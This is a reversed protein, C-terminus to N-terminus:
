SPLRKALEAPLADRTKETIRLLEVDDRRKLADTFPHRFGHITAVIPRRSEFLASVAERFRSSALEMKGLEDVIVVDTEAAAELAPLAVREFAKVDVGYRGV